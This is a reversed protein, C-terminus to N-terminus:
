HHLHPASPSILGVSGSEAPGHAKLLHWGAAAEVVMEKTNNFNLFLRNVHCCAALKKVLVLLYSCILGISLVDHLRSKTIGLSPHLYYLRHRTGSVPCFPSIIPCLYLQTRLPDAINYVPHRGVLPTEQSQSKDVWLSSVPSYREPCFLVPQSQTRNKLKNRVGPQAWLRETMVTIGRQPWLLDPSLRPILPHVHHSDSQM